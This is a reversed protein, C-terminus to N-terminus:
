AVEAMQAASLYPYTMAPDVHTAGGSAFALRRCQVDDNTWCATVSRVQRWRREGTLRVWGGPEMSDATVLREAVLDGPDPIVDDPDCPDLHGYPLRCPRDDVLLECRTIVADEDHVKPVQRGLEEGFAVLKVAMQENLRELEGLLDFFRTVPDDDVGQQPDTITM